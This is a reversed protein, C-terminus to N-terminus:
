FLLILLYLVVIAEYALKTMCDRISNDVNQRSGQDEIKLM